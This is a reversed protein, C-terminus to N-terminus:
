PCATGTYQAFDCVRGNQYILNLSKGDFNGMLSTNVRTDMWIYRSQVGSVRFKVPGFLMFTFGVNFTKNYNISPISIQAPDSSIWAINGPPVCIQTDIPPHVGTLPPTYDTSLCGAVVATQTAEIRQRQVELAQQTAQASINARALATATPAFGDNVAPTVLLQQQAQAQRATVTGQEVLIRNHEASLAIQTKQIAVQEQASAIERERSDLQVILAIIAAVSALFAVVGGVTKWQRNQTDVNAEALLLRVIKM